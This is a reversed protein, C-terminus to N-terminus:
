SRHGYSRFSENRPTLSYLVRSHLFRQESIVVLLSYFCQVALVYKCCSSMVQLYLLIILGGKGGKAIAENRATHWLHQVGRCFSEFSEKTVPTCVCVSIYADCRVQVMLMSLQNMSSVPNSMELRPHWLPGVREIRPHRLPGVRAPVDLHDAQIDAVLMARKTPCDAISHSQGRSKRLNRPLLIACVCAAENFCLYEPAPPFTSLHDAKGEWEHGCSRQTHYSMLAM